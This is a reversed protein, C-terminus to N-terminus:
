VGPEMKQGMKRDPGPNGSPNRHSSIPFHVKPPVLPNTQGCSPNIVREQPWFGEQSPRSEAECAQHRAPTRVSSSSEGM